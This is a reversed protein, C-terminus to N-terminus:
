KYNIITDLQFQKLKAFRDTELDESFQAERALFQKLAQRVAESRSPYFGLNVMTEIGDLYQDPINITVIKM